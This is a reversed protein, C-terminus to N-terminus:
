TCYSLLRIKNQLSIEKLYFLIIKKLILRKNATRGHGTTVASSRKEHVVMRFASCSISALSPLPLALLLPWPENESGKWCKKKWLQIKRTHNNQNMKALFSFFPPFFLLQGLKGAAASQIYTFRSTSQSLRFFFCCCLHEVKVCALYEFKKKLLRELSEESNWSWQCCLKRQVLGVTLTLLTWQPQQCKDSHKM